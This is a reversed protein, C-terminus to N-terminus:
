IVTNVSPDDFPMQAKIWECFVKIRKHKPSNKLYVLHAKWSVPHPFDVPFVLQGSKLYEGVMIDSALMVGHGALVASLALDSSTVETKNLETHYTDVNAAEFWTEWNVKNEHALSFLRAHLLDRPHTAALKDAVAPACVPFVPNDGIQEVVLSPKHLHTSTTSFRIAVDIKGDNLDEVRNSGLVNINIHSQESYFDILRPVLWLACFAQTSSVTLSGAVPAEQVQNLGEVIDAFGRQCSALLVKGQATLTMSRAQRSFLKVNLSDELQRMKQSVAAQSIALEGAAKSYSQHRAAVEFCLLNNLWRLRKDM